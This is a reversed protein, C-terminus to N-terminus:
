TAIDIDFNQALDRVPQLTALLAAPDSSSNQTLGLSPATPAVATANRGVRRRGGLLSADGDDDDDSDDFSYLARRPM